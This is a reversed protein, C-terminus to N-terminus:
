VVTCGADGCIRYSENARRKGAQNKILGKKSRGSTAEGADEDGAEEEEEEEDDDDDDDDEGEEDEDEEDEDEEADTASKRVLEPHEVKFKNVQQLWDDIIHREHAETTENIKAYLLDLFRADFLYHVGLDQLVADLTERPVVYPVRSKESTPDLLEATSADMWPQSRASNHRLVVHWLTYWLRALENTDFLRLQHYLQELDKRFEDTEAKGHVLHKVLLSDAPELAQLKALLEDMSLADTRYVEFWFAYSLTQRKWNMEDLVSMRYAEFISSLMMREENHQTSNMKALQELRRLSEDDMMHGRLGLAKKSLVKPGDLTPMDAAVAAAAVASAGKTGDGSARGGGSGSKAMAALAAARPNSKEFADPPIPDEARGLLVACAVQCADEEKERAVTIKFDFGPSIDLTEGTLRNEWTDADDVLEHNASLLSVFAFAGTFEAESPYVIGHVAKSGDLARLTQRVARKRRIDERRNVKVLQEVEEFAEKKSRQVKGTYQSLSFLAYGSGDDLRLLGTFPFHAIRLAGWPTSDAPRQRKVRRLLDKNQKPTDELTGDWYVDVGALEAVMESQLKRVEPNSEEAIAEEYALEGIVSAILKNEEHREWYSGTFELLTPPFVSETLNRQSRSSPIVRAGTMWTLAQPDTFHAAGEVRNSKREFNDQKRLRQRAFEPSCFLRDWFKQWMSLRVRISDELERLHHSGSKLLKDMYLLKDNINKSEGAATSAQRPLEPRSNLRARSGARSNRRASDSGTDM